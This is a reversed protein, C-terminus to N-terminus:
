NVPVESLKKFFRYSPNYAKFYHSVCFIKSFVESRRKKHISIFDNGTIKRYQILNWESENNAAMKSLLMPFTTWPQLHHQRQVGTLITPWDVPYGYINYVRFGRNQAVRVVHALDPKFINLGQYWVYEDM